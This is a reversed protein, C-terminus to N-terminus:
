PRRRAVLALDFEVSHWTPRTPNECRLAVFKMMYRMQESNNPSGAHVLDFHAIVVSGAPIEQMVAQEARLDHLTAYLHSGALFRTPGM